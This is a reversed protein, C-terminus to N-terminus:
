QKKELAGADRKGNINSGTFDKLFPGSFQWAYLEEINTKADALTGLSIRLFEFKGKLYRGSPTGGVYLDSSNEISANGIGTGSKDKKGDIYITMVNTARDTEAIVHHWSGDNVRARSELKAVKGGSKITYCVRGKSNIELSYGSDSMKEALVGGTIGSASEFIAEILFNGDYVEPSKFDKGEVHKTERGSRNWRYNVNYDFSRNLANDTCMVYQNIGNLQLAGKTWDELLGDVYDAKGINVGKLDFRPISSYDDRGVFYPTMYWHEDLITLPDNGTPYFNWEGVTAYLSWPVFVKVGKDIAASGSALAFNHNAPDIMPSTNTEVGLDSAIAKTEVLAKRADELSEHWQGSPKFAAYKGTIDHFVNGTFANTEMAYSDKQPGADQENGIAMSRAPITHWFVWDGIGDWINGLFKNRGAQPAQRRTGKVFNYATNNFFSNQYSIIEQFMTTAGVKSQPDKSLGWGINNFYYNNFAGDLYYAMGFRADKSNVWSFNRLGGPNGSLNNYVYATGGQWTEINGCDDGVRIGDTVKNQYILIRTLPIDGLNGNLKGGFVNIGAHWPTVIINGAIEVTQGCTVEIGNASGIRQARQGAKYIYNRLVKADLLHGADDPLDYGWLIGDDITIASYDTERIECDTVSVKDIDFGAKVAKMYVAANINKFVCNSVHINNGGGWVRICAPYIHKKLTFKEGWPMETLDWSVNTYKFSLGSFAIHDKEEMHILTAEKGAELTVVNPDKGNPLIVYLRGGNGKKDFWFEGDPDDLYHPKDELYYRQHISVIRSTHSGIYGEFGVGKKEADFGQVYSPYPTGDVWAFEAWIVAGMYLEKPGTINKSDIGLILDRGTESKMFVRNPASNKYDWTWWESNFDEPDSIKWNPMRALPIRTVQEQEVMWLTRPAFDLDRFWVEGGAPIDKHDAGKTWGGTIRVSGAIVAEGEGWSPDSTFRIPNNEEGSEQVTITGRYIAGRKFVFTQIGKCEKSKGEAAPDWPHRKWPSATTLGNNNDNGNEYDIYRVSKGAKYVFSKPTWLLDGTETAKAQATEWSYKGQQPKEDPAFGIISLYGILFIFILKKM